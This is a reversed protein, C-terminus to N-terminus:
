TPITTRRNVVLVYIRTHRRATHYLTKQADVFNINGLRWDLKCRRHLLDYYFGIQTFNNLASWVDKGYDLSSVEIVMM